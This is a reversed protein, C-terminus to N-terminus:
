GRVQTHLPPLVTPKLSPNPLSESMYSRTGSMVKAVGQEARFIRAAVQHSVVLTDSSSWDVKVAPGGGPGSAAAGHDTDSVFVTGGDTGASESAPLISVQTSFATTAGCDRSFVVAKLKGNPSRVESLVENRCSSSTLLSVHQWRRRRALLGITARGVILATRVQRRM